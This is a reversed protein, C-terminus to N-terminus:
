TAKLRRYQNLVHERFQSPHFPQPYSQPPEHEEEEGEIGEERILGHLRTIRATLSRYKQKLDDIETLLDDLRRGWKRIEWEADFESPKQENEVM